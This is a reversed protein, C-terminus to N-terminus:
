KAVYKSDFEILRFTWVKSEVRLVSNLNKKVNMEFYTMIIKM